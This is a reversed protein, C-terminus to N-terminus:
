SVDEDALLRLIIKGAPIYSYMFLVPYRKQKDGAATDPKKNRKRKKPMRM